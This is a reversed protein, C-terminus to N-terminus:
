IQWMRKRASTAISKARLALRAPQQSSSDPLKGCRNRAQHRQTAHENHVDNPQRHVTRAQDVSSSMRHTMDLESHRIDLSTRNGFESHRFGIAVAITGFTASRGRRSSFHDLSTSLIGKMRNM